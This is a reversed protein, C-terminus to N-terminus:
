QFSVRLLDIYRFESFLCASLWVLLHLSDLVCRDPGALFEVAYTVQECLEQYKSNALLSQLSQCAQEGQKTAYISLSTPTAQSAAPEKIHGQANPASRLHVQGHSDVPLQCLLFAGLSRAVVRFRHSYPSKKGLGLAGLLGESAKDEGYRLLLTSLFNLHPILTSEVGKFKVQRVILDFVKGWLLLMKAEDTQKPKIFTCWHLIKALMQAEAALSACRPLERLLFSHLLLITCNKVSSEVVSPTVEEPFVLSETVPKWGYGTEMNPRLQLPHPPPTAVSSFHSEISHEIVRVMFDFSVLSQGAATITSLAFLHAQPLQEIIDLFIDLLKEAMSDQTSCINLLNLIERMLSIFRPSNREQPEHICVDLALQFLTTVGEAFSHKQSDMRRTANALLEVMLQVLAYRKEWTGQNLHQRPGSSSPFGAAARLLRLSLSLQSGKHLISSSDCHAKQWNLVDQYVKSDLLHWHFDQALLILSPISTDDKEMVERESTLMVLLQLLFIHLQLLTSADENLRYYEVIQEWDFLPFIRGLFVFCQAPVWENVKLKMMAEMAGLDPHFHRWPLAELATHYLSLIYHPTNPHTMFSSYHSWLLPMLTYGNTSDDLKSQLFALCDVFHQMMEQM